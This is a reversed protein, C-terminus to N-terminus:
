EVGGILGIDEAEDVLKSVADYREQYQPQDAEICLLDRTAEALRQAFDYLQVPDIM